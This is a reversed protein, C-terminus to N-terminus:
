NNGNGIVDRNTDVDQVNVLKDNIIQIVGTIVSASLSQKKNKGWPYPRVIKKHKECKINEQIDNGHLHNERPPM